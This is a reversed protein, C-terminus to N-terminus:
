RVENLPLLDALSFFRDARIASLQDGAVASNAVSQDLDVQAAACLEKRSEARKQARM